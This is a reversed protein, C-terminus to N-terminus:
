KRELEGTGANVWRREEEMDRASCANLLWWRPDVVEGEFRSSFAGSNKIGAPLPNPQLGLAGRQGEGTLHVMGAVFVRQFVDSKAPAAPVADELASDTRTLDFTVSPIPYHVLLAPENRMTLPDFSSLILAARLSPHRFADASVRNLKDAENLRFQGLPTTITIPFWATKSTPALLIGPLFTALGHEPDPHVYNRPRKSLETLRRLDLPIDDGDGTIWGGVGYPALLTRPVWGWDGASNMISLRAGSAFIVNSPIFPLMQMLAIMRQEPDQLDTLRTTDLGLFSAIVLTEDGQRSTSKGSLAAMLRECSREPHKKLSGQSLIIERMMRSGLAQELTVSLPENEQGPKKRLMNRLNFVCGDGVLFADFNLACEQFTWLRSSWGSILLRMFVQHHPTDIGLRQLDPDLVIVASAGVYIERMKSISFDRLKQHQPEVPICLGDFWIALTKPSTRHHSSIAAPTEKWPEFLGTIRKVVRHLYCLQCAPLENADPSALGDAWVHSIALYPMEPELPQVFLEVSQADPSTQVITFVPIQGRELIHAAASIDIQVQECTCHEDRHKAEGNAQLQNAVCRLADCRSHDREARVTGLAFAYAQVDEDYHLQINRVTHPCWNALGFHHELWFSMAGESPSRDYNGHWVGPRHIKRLASVLAGTLILVLFVQQHLGDLDTRYLATQQRAYSDLVSAASTASRIIDLISVFHAERVEQDLKGFDDKWRQMLSELNSNSWYRTGDDATETFHELKVERKVCSQILGLCLWTQIFANTEDLTHGDTVNFPDVNRNVLERSQWSSVNWGKRIPYSAFDGGDYDDVAVIPVKIFTSNPPLPLHEM